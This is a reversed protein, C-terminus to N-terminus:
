FATRLSRSFSKGGLILTLIAFVLAITISLCIESLSAGREIIRRPMAISSAIPIFSLVQLPLGHLSLSAVLSGMLIFQLPTSKVQLDQQRATAAGIAAWVTALALFGIVFYLLFWGFVSGIPALLSLRGEMRLAVLGVIVYIGMQLLALCTGSLIKGVLLSRLPIATAIVEITRSQREEAVSQAIGLGFIATGMYFAIALGATALQRGQADPTSTNAQVVQLTSQQFIQDRSLGTKTLNVEVQYAQVAQTIIAITTSDLSGSDLLVYKGAELYLSCEVSRRQVDDVAQAKDVEIARFTTSRSAEGLSQALNVIATTDSTAAIRVTAPSKEGVYTMAIMAGLILVALGTSIIFTWSRLRVALEHRLVVSSPSNM